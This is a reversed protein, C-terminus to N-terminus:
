SEPLESEAYGLERSLDQAAAVVLEVLDRRRKECDRAQPTATSIAAVVQGRHDWVPAGTAFAGVEYDDAALCYGQGRIRQLEAALEGKDVITRETYRALGAGALFASREEEPMFALLVKPAAGIHLPILEGTTSTAQVIHDGVSVDICLAKEGALIFLYATDGSAQALTDLIPTGSTRLDLKRRYAEGLILFGPGLRYRRSVPDKQVYGLHGLTTLVRFVRDKALGTRQGIETVGLDGADSDLFSEAVRLAAIVSEIFYRSDPLRGGKAIGKGWAGRRTDEACPMDTQYL